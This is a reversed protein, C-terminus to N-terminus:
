VVTCLTLDGKVHLLMSGWEAHDRREIEERYPNYGDGGGNVTNDYNQAAAILQPITMEKIDM